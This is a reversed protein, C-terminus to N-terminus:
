SMLMSPRCCPRMHLTLTVMVSPLPAVSVTVALRLTHPDYPLERFPQGGPVRMFWPPTGPAEAVRLPPEHCGVYGCVLRMCQQGDGHM